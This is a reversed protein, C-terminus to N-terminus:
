QRIGLGLGTWGGCSELGNFGGSGVMRRPTQQCSRPRRSDRQCDPYVASLERRSQRTCSSLFSSTLSYAGFSDAACPGGFSGQTRTCSAHSRKQAFNEEQSAHHSFGFRLVRLALFPGLNACICLDAVSFFHCSFSHKPRRHARSSTVAPAALTADNELKM